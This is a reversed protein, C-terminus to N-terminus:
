DGVYIRFFTAVTKLITVQRDSELGKILEVIDQVVKIEGVMEKREAAKIRLIAQEAEAKKEEDTKYGM